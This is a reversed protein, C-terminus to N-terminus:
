LQWLFTLDLKSYNCIIYIYIRAASIGSVRDDKGDCFYHYFKTDAGHIIRTVLSKKEAREELQRAAMSALTVLSLLAM